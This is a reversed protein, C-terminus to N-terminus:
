RDEPVRQFIAARPTGVLAPGSSRSAWVKDQLFQRFSVAEETTDFDLDVVIYHQDDVPQAIRAAQVGGAVRAQAFSDFATRWVRYDTIAHEIHLTVM